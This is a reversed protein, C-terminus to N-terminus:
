PWFAGLGFTLGLRVRGFDSVLRDSIAFQQRRVNIEVAGAARLWLRPHVDLRIEPGVRLSPVYRTAAGREGTAATGRVSLRRLWVSAHGGTRLDGRATGYRASVGAARERAAVSGPPAEIEARGPARVAVLIEAEGGAWSRRAGVAASLEAQAGVNGGAGAVGLGIEVAPSLGAAEGSARGREAEAGDARARRTKLATVIEGIELALAREAGPGEGAPAASVSVLEGEGSGDAGAVHLVPAAGAGGAGGGGNAPRNSVGTPVDLWAVVRVDGEMESAWAAAAEIRAARDRSALDPGEVVQASGSLQVAVAERLGSASGGHPSSAVAVRTSATSDGAVDAGAASEAGGLVLALSLAGAVARRGAHTSRASVM